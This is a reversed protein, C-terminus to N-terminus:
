AAARRRYIPVTMIFWTLVAIGIALVRVIMKALEGPALVPALRGVLLALCVSFLFIFLGFFGIVTRGELLQASGPLITAFLRNRRLMGTQHQGVEELKTRKTAVSVGDRKLYIHICQMCYTASERGSKCRPCFTRGCKICSGAFGARRRKVFILPALIAALVGGLTIPNRASVMPDFWSYNGFLARATGGKAITASVDWAQAIPPRYMVVKQAPPNSMVREIYNRDIRKAQDLRQAQEDFKYTEGSAISHNYYAIALHPDLTEARQYETIAAAFDNDLFHLNGLNVHAGASDRLEYARRYHVAAQPENGEQLQLNGLLLHLMASDPVINVLEQLRRLAEPYYSQEESAIASLVVPGDVGAIWHATLDLVIPAAAVILALVIILVREVVGAYGFFIVFWYFLLWMPGLWVFLPLFLLAFALVTVAGGRTWHSLIERFDHAMSRGYRVFLAIAFIAATLAFAATAVILFDSQSLLQARYKRFVKAFGRFATPIAKAWNQQESAADAKSFAVAPSAPDLVDSVQNAWDAAVRNGKKAAQRALGAASEAYLPFNKIGYSKGVDTLENTKKRATEVDGSDMASTAQPWIDRPAVQEARAEVSGLCMWALVSVVVLRRMPLLKDQPASRRLIQPALAGVPAVRLM